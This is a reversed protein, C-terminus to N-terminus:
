RNLEIGHRTSRKANAIASPLRLLSIMDDRGMAHIGVWPMFLCDSVVRRAIVQGTAPNKLDYTAGDAAGHWQGGILGAARLLLDPAKLKQSLHDLVAAESLSFGPLM